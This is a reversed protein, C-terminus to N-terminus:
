ELLIQNWRDSGYAQTSYFQAYHLSYTRNYISLYPHRLTKRIFTHEGGQGVLM